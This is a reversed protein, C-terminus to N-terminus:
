DRRKGSTPLDAAEGRAASMFGIQQIIAAAMRYRRCAPLDRFAFSLASVLVTRREM